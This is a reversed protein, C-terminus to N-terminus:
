SPMLSVNAMVTDKGTEGNIFTETHSSDDLMLKDDKTECLYSFVQERRWSIEIDEESKIDYDVFVVVTVNGEARLHPLIRAVEDRIIKQNEEKMIFGM